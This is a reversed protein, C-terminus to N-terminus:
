SVRSLKVADDDRLFPMLKRWATPSPVLNIIHEIPVQARNYTTRVSSLGQSVTALNELEIEPDHGDLFAYAIEYCAIRIDEPVETDAGRPFELPQAAEQARIDEDSANPNAQLLEYVTHKKGKFNLADITQTAKLLAKPRDLPDSNTWMPSHLRKSFYDDAEVLSGYYTSNIAM